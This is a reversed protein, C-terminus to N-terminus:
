IPPKHTLARFEIYLSPGNGIQETLSDGLQNGVLGILRKQRILRRRVEFVRGGDVFVQGAVGDALPGDGADFGLAGGSVKQRNQVLQRPIYSVQSVPRTRRNIVSERQPQAYDTCLRHVTEMNSIEGDQRPNRIKEDEGVM